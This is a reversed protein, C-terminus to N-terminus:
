KITTKYETNIQNNNVDFLNVKIKSTEADIYQILDENVQGVNALKTTVTKENNDNDYVSYTISYKAAGEIGSVNVKVNALKFGENLLSHPTIIVTATPDGSISIEHTIGDKNTYSIKTAEMILSKVEEEPQNSNFVNAWTNQAGDLQYFVSTYGKPILENIRSTAEEAKMFLYDIAFAEVEKSTENYLVLSNNPIIFDEQAYTMSFSSLILISVVLLFVKNRLKKM